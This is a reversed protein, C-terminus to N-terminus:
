IYFYFTFIFHLTCVSFTIDITRFKVLKARYTKCLLTELRVIDFKVFGLMLLYSFGLKYLQNSISLFKRVISCRGVICVRIARRCVIIICVSYECTFVLDRNVCNEATPSGRVTGDGLAMGRRRLKLGLDSTQDGQACQAYQTAYGILGKLGTTLPYTGDPWEGNGTISVFVVDSVAVFLDCSFFFFLFKVREM